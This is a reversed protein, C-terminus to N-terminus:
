QVIQKLNDSGTQDKRQLKTTILTRHNESESLHTAKNSKIREGTTLEQEGTDM